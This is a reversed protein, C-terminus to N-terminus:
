PNTPNKEIVMAGDALDSPGEVVVREGAQVGALVVVTNDQVEGLTVARREVQRHSLVFVVDQGGDSRAAAKPIVVGAAAPQNEAGLDRFAVKVGMNPLIKPDLEDFGIRVKVTAKQRDAAPIIAIVKCPIKWDTYADLTAEVPQGPQVRHIYSENVDVEIELSNMDVVTCVGTRTFGGGASVPSIMEGAQADKSIVVGAFPARIVRDEREQKWLSVQREAVTVEDTQRALRAQLSDLDARATDLASATSVGEQVLSSVRKFEIRAEELRVKTEDLTTKAVELQAVALNLNADVNSVDLRALVQNSEVTMGEEVLVEVVKGTVKSSVTAQRRATVYGSSNLVTRRSTSSIEQALATRVEPGRENRFWLFVAVGVAVLLFFLLILWWPRGGQSREPEREIRLQDLTGKEVSMILAFIARWAAL